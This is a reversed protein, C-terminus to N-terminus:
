GISCGVTRETSDATPVIRLAEVVRLVQGSWVVAIRNMPWRRTAQEGVVDEPV